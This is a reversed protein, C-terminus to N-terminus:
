PVRSMPFANLYAWLFLPRSTVVQQDRGQLRPPAQPRVRGPATPPAPLTSKGGGEEEGTRDLLLWVWM